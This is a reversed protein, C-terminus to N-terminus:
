PMTGLQAQRTEAVLARFAAFGPKRRGEPSMLGFTAETYPMLFPLQPADALEYFVAFRFRARVPSRAIAALLARPSEQIWRAQRREGFASLCGTECIAGDKDYRAMLEGLYRIQPWAGWDALQGYNGPYSDYGIVDIAESAAELVAELHGKWPLHFTDCANLVTSVQWGPHRAQEADIVAHATRCVRADLAAPIPDLVTNFENGLQYYRVAPGMARVVRTVYAQYSAFFAEPESRLQALAWPPYSGLNLKVQRGHAVARAVLARYFPLEESRFRGPEPELESWRVDLRELGVGLEDLAQLQPALSRGTARLADPHWTIGWRFGEPMVPLPMRPTPWGPHYGLWVFALLGGGTLALPLWSRKM